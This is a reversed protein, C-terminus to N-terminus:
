VRDSREANPIFCSAKQSEIKLTGGMKRMRSKALNLALILSFYDPNKHMHKKIDSLYMDLDQDHDSTFADGTHKFQLFWTSKDKQSLTIELVRKETKQMQKICADLLGNILDRFNGENILTLTSTDPLVLQKEVKHKFFLDADWFNLEEKIVQSLILPKLIEEEQSRNTIINIMNEMRHLADEMQSFRKTKKSINNALEKLQSAATNPLSSVLVSEIAKLDKKSDIKLMEIHMSLIQIPGNLNHVIGKALDGTKSNRFYKYLLHELFQDSEM